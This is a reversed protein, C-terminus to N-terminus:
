RGEAHVGRITLVLTIKDVCGNAGIVVDVNGPADFVAILGDMEAVVFDSGFEDVAENEHAVRAGFEHLGEAGAVAGVAHTVRVGPGDDVFGITYLPDFM